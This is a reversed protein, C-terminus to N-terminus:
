MARNSLVRWNYLRLFSVSTQMIPSLQAVLLAIEFRHFIGRTPHADCRKLRATRLHISSCGPRGSASVRKAVKIPLARLTTGAAFSRVTCSAWLRSTTPAQLFLVVRQLEYMSMASRYKFILASKSFTSSKSGNRRFM